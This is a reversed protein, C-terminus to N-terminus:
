PCENKAPLCTNDWCGDGSPLCNNSLAIISGNDCMCIELVPHSGAPEAKAHVTNITNSILFILCLLLTLLFLKRNKM